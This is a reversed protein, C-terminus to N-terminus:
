TLTNPRTRGKGIVELSFNLSVSGFGNAAQCVYVGGDRAEVNKIKLGHPLVRYRSWGANINRGDKTWLLLPPPNGEVPCPLRVNRGLMAIQTEKVVSSM